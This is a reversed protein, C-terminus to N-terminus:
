KKPARRAADDILKLYREAEAYRREHLPAFLGWRANEAKQEPTNRTQEFRQRAAPINGELLSLMGRRLYFQGEEQRKRLLSVQLVRFSQKGNYRIATSQYEPGLPEGVAISTAFTRAAADYPTPALLASLPAFQVLDSLPQKSEVFPKPDFEQRVGKEPDLKSFQGELSEIIEGAGAFNGEMTYRHFKLMLVVRRVDEDAMLKQWYDSTDIEDLDAAADELRGLVLQLAIQSLVVYPTAQGFEKQLEVQPDRLLKIAEGVLGFELAAEVQASYRIAGSAPFKRQEYRGLMRGLEGELAGLERDLDQLRMGVEEAGRPPEVLLYKKALQFADRAEDLALLFTPTDPRLMVGPPVHGLWQRQLRGRSDPFFVSGAPLFGSGRPQRLLQFAMSNIPVGLPTPGFERKRGLYLNALVQAAESPSVSAGIDRYNEPAPFRQLCQRLATIQGITRVIDDIPLQPDGLAGALAWYGDPHDPDAAIARYAARLALIPIALAEDDPPVPPLLRNAAAKGAAAAPWGGALANGLVQLRRWAEDRVFAVYQIRAHRYVQWGLSEDAAAPTLTPTRLFAEEWGGLRRVPAVKGPRLKAVDPGFALAVADLRMAEFSPKEAGPAPRWGCVTSRGDLYWPAWLESSVWQTMSWQRARVRATAGDGPGTYTLVYEVGLRQLVDMLEKPTPKQEPPVNVLGTAKRVDTFTELEGRHHRYRSNAYVKEQPAYWACYSAFELSLILGRTEPDLRPQEGTRWAQLEEAGRVMGSEPEVAWGVHRAFAENGPPPHMWGPWARV